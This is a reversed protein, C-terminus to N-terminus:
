LAIGNESSKAPPPDAWRPPHHPPLDTWHQDGDRVSFSRLYAKDGILVVNISVETAQREFEASGMVLVVVEPKGYRSTFSVQFRQWPGLERRLRHCDHLWDESNQSRFYPSAQDYIPQCAGANFGARFNDVAELARAQLSADVPMEELLDAPASHRHCAALLLCAAFLSAVRLIVAFAGSFITSRNPIDNVLSQEARLVKGREVLGPEVPAPAFELARAFSLV